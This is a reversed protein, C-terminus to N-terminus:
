PSVKGSMWVKHKKIFDVGAVPRGPSEPARGRHLFAGLPGAHHQSGEPASHPPFRRTAVRSQDGGGRGEWRSPSNLNRSAPHGSGRQVIAIGCSESRLTLGLAEFFADEKGGSTDEVM